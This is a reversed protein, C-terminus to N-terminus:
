DSALILGFPTISACCTLIGAGATSTSGNTVHKCPRDGPCIHPNPAGCPTVALGNQQRLRHRLCRSFGSPSSVTARVLVSVPLRPSYVRFSSLVATLSCTYRLWYSRYLFYRM